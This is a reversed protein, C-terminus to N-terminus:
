DMRPQGGGGDLSQGTDTRDWFPVSLFFVALLLNKILGPWRQEVVAILTLALFLMGPVLALWRLKHWM